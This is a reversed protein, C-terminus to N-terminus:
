IDMIVHTGKMPPLVLTMAKVKGIGDTVIITILKMLLQHNNM